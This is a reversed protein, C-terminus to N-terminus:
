QLVFVGFPPKLKPLIMKLGAIRVEPSQSLFDFLIIDAKTFRSALHLFDKDNSLVIRKEKLALKIVSTDKMEANVEKVLLVDYKNKKLFVSVSKPVNHDVLFRLM